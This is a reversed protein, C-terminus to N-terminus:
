INKNFEENDDKLETNKNAKERIVIKQVGQVFKNSVADDVFRCVESVYKPYKETYDIMSDHFLKYGSKIDCLKVSLDLQKAKKLFLNSHARSLFDNPTSILMSPPFRDTLTNLTQCIKAFRNNKGYILNTYINKLPLGGFKFDGFIACTMIVGKIKPGGCLDFDFQLIPNTQINAILSVIHAGASDGALFINNFDIHSSINEDKLLYDYMEFFEFIPTPFYKNEKENIKSYEFNVVCYGNEVIQKILKNLGEKKGAVYGGGHIAFITPLKKDSNKPYHFDFINNEKDSGYQINLFSDIKDSNIKKNKSPKSCNQIFLNKYLDKLGVVINYM